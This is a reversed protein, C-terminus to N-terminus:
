WQQVFYVNSIGVFNVMNGKINYSSVVSYFYLYICYNNHNNKYKCSWCQFLIFCPVNWYQVFALIQFKSVHMLLGISYNIFNNCFIFFSSCQIVLNKIVTQENRCYKRTSCILNFEIQNIINYSKSILKFYLLVQLCM